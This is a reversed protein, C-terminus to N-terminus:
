TSHRRLSDMRAWQSSGLLKCEWARWGNVNNGTIAVAAASPSSFRRGDSLELAGENVTGLHIIGKHSFRFETGHPISVGKVVWSTGGSGTSVDEVKASGLKLLRRVVNNYSDDEGKRLATLKQWVEFDVDITTM